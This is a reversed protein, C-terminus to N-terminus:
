TSKRHVEDRKPDGFQIEVGDREIECSGKKMPVIEAEPTDISSHFPAPTANEPAAPWSIAGPAPIGPRRFRRGPSSQSSRRTSVRGVRPPKSKSAYKVRLDPIAQYPIVTGLAPWHM